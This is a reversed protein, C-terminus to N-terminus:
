FIQWRVVVRHGRRQLEYGLTTMPNFHGTLAPCVMGFHTM